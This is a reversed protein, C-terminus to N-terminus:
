CAPLLASATSNAHRPPVLHQVATVVPGLWALSLAQPILFLAFALAKSEVNMALFFMPVAIVFCIAPVLPYWAKKAGKGLKDAM